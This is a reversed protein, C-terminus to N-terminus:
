RWWGQSARHCDWTDSTVETPLSGALKGKRLVEAQDLFSPLQPVPSPAHFRSLMADEDQYLSRLLDGLRVSSGM